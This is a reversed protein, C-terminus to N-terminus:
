ETLSHGDPMAYAYDGSQAIEGWQKWRQVVAAYLCVLLWPLCPLLLPGGVRELTLSKGAVHVRGILAQQQILSCCVSISM